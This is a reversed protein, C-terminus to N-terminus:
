IQSNLFKERLVPDNMIREMKQNASEVDWPAPAADPVATLKPKNSKPTLGIGSAFEAAANENTLIEEFVEAYAISNEFNKRIEESKNFRSGDASREGYSTLIMDEILQLMTGVEGSAAIKKAYEVIDGGYRVQLRTAEVTSVHFYLDESVELGLFNVYNVTKKLM